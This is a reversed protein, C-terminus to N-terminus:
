VIEFKPSVKLLLVLITYEEGLSVIKYCEAM